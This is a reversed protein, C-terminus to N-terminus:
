WFKWKKVSEKLAYVFTAAVTENALLNATTIVVGKDNIIQVEGVIAGKKIPYSPQNWHIFARVTPEESPYFHISLNKALSASLANKAGEFAKSFKQSGSVLLREMKKEAFAAEFLRRSDEFRDASTPAGFVCAILTRDEQAAVSVLCWGALGTRGTKGAIAKPYYFKKGPNILANFQKLLEESRKNTKPRLYESRSLIERLAPVRFAKQMLLCQDYPTTFHNSHHYGHPNTFHTNKCGLQKVYENLEDMFTPVSGSCVEGIVNAADNGSILLLGNFISELSLIEGKILGMRTADTEHWHSPTEDTRKGSNVRVAEASVKVTQRLDLRKEELAFLATAIKTTSAPFGPTHGNKDYIVAGTEANMVLASRAKIAVQLPAAFLTTGLSLFICFISSYIQM